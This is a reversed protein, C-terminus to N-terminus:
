LVPGKKFWLRVSFLSFSLLAPSPVRSNNGLPVHDHTQKLENPVNDFCMSSQQAQKSLQFGYLSKINRIQMHLFSLTFILLKLFVLTLREIYIRIYIYYYLSKKLLDNPGKLNWIYLVCNNFECMLNSPNIKKVFVWGQNTDYISLSRSRSLSPHQPFIFHDTLASSATVDGITFSLHPPITPDLLIAGNHAQVM